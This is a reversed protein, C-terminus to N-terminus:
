AAGPPKYTITAKPDWMPTPANQQGYYVLAGRTGGGYLGDANIGAAAQFRAILKRDVHWKAQSGYQKVRALLHRNLDHALSGAQTADFGPPPPTVAPVAASEPAAAQEPTIAPAEVTEEPPVPAPQKPEVRRPPLTVGVAKAAARVEPGLIGDAKIGALKQFRFVPDSPEGKRGFDAGPKALYKALLQAAQRVEQEHEAQQAQQAQLAEKAKRAAEDRERIAKQEAVRAAQEQAKARAEAAEKKRQAEAQEEEHKRREAAAAEAKKREEEAKRKAAAATERAEQAEADNTAAEVAATAGQEIAAAQQEEQRAADEAAKHSESVQRAREALDALQAAEAAAAAAEAQAADREQVHQVARDAHAFAEEETRQVEAPPPTATEPPLQLPGPPQAAKARAARIALVGLGAPIVLAM